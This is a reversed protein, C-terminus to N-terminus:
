IRTIFMLLIPHKKKMYGGSYAKNLKRYPYDKFILSITSCFLGFGNKNMAARKELWM